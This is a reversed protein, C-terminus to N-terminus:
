FNDKREKEKRSDQKDTDTIFTPVRLLGLDFAPMQKRAPPKASTREPKNGEKRLMEQVARHWIICLVM